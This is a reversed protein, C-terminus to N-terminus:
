EGEKGHAEAFTGAAQALAAQKADAYQILKKANDLNPDLRLAEKTVASALNYSGQHLYAIGLGVFLRPNEPDRNIADQYAPIAEAVRNQSLYLGALRAYPQSMDPALEIAKKFREEAMQPKNESWFKEGEQLYSQADEAAVAAVSVLASLLGVYITKRLM